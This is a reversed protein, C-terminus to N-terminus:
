PGPACTASSPASSSRPCATRAPSPRASHATGRAATVEAACVCWHARRSGAPSLAPAGEDGRRVRDWHATRGPVARAPVSRPVRPKAQLAAAVGKTPPSSAPTVLAPLAPPLVEFVMPVSRGAPNGILSSEQIAVATYRGVALPPSAAGSHWGSGTGSASATAVVIGEESEGEHIEVRVQQRM